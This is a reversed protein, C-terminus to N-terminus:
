MNLNPPGKDQRAHNGVYKRPRGKRRKILCYFVMNSIPSNETSTDQPAMPEDIFIIGKSSKCLPFNHYFTLSFILDIHKTSIITSFETRINKIIVAPLFANDPMVGDRVSRLLITHGLMHVSGDDRLSTAHQGIGM